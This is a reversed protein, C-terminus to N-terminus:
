SVKLDCYTVIMNSIYLISDCSPIIVFYQVVCSQDSVMSVM